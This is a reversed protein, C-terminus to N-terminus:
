YKYLLVPAVSFKLYLPIIGRDIACVNLSIESRGCYAYVTRTDYTSIYLSDM